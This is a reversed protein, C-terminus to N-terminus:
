RKIICGTVSTTAVPVARNQVIANIASALYPHKVDEEVQPNDDIAGHYVVQFVDIKPVLVFVEPTKRAGLLDAVEQSRDTLFPISLGLRRTEAVINASADAKSKDPNNPNILIFRVGSRNYGDILRTIRDEYFKAYPCYLSTFIIVVAEADQYESLTFSSGNTINPLTFDEIQSSRQSLIPNLVGLLIICVIGVVKIM